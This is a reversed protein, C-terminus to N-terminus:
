SPTPKRASRRTRPPLIVTQLRRYSRRRRSASNTLTRSTPRSTLRGDYPNAGDETGIVAVGLTRTLNAQEQLKGDLEALTADRTQRLAALREDRGFFEEHKTKTLYSQTVANVIDALHTPDSGLLGISVQYTVDVRKVDLSHQLRLV